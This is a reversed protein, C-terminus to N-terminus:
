SLSFLFNVTLGSTLSDFQVDSFLIVNIVKNFFSVHLYLLVYICNNYVIESWNFKYYIVYVVCKYM